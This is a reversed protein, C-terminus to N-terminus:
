EERATQETDDDDSHYIPNLRADNFALHRQIINATGQIASLRAKQRFANWTRSSLKRVGLIEVNIARLIEANEPMWSGLAGVVLPFTPGLHQYKSIKEARARSLTDPDDFPITVDILIPPNASTIVIDPRLTTLPFQKNVTVSHGHRTLIESFLEQVANHRHTALVQSHPCNSIVHVTTEKPAPCHRCKQSGDNTTGPRGRVPLLGLRARHLQNWTAFSLTSWQSTMKAIDKSTSDLDLGRPARGQHPADILRQTFRQRVVTRLGRVAKTSTVSIDDAVLLSHTEDGSVDIRVKLYKAARRTRTWLNCIGKTNTRAAFLCGDTSGSIYASTPLLPPAHKGLQITITDELHGRAISKTIPDESDLLQTARALTWIDSDMSLPTFGLGGVRRDGYLFGDTADIPVNSFNKLHLKITNELEILGSPGDKMVRGSALHHSLSPLLYARVVELKQWPALLSNSLKELKEVIDNPPRFLLRAGIPTGLFKEHEEPSISRLESRGLRLSSVCVRGNEISLCSCKGGNFELGLDAAASDTHDIVVQQSEWNSSVVAMDDAYATCKVTVGYLQYGPNTSAKAARVLPEAALNFVITSLGDGQRVGATPKVTITNGGAMFQSSNNAYIDLLIHRLDVPIPLSGFLESLVGHPLSGFANSLDLWCISLSEKKQIATRVSSELLETHEQIGKVGPLFGKQEPSLWSYSTAISVMRSTLVSTFVKYLTSLLSIPRFNDVQDTEGKKHILVVKAVKWAAPIGFKWVAAYLVELLCGGPDLAKLHRYELKDAGPSTNTAWRLKMAVEAATPPKSLLESEEETPPTWECSDFARRAKSREEDSSVPREYIERLKSDAAEITGTYGPSSEELAKRVAQRPYLKFLRQIKSAEKAKKERHNARLRQQQRSQGRRKNTPQRHSREKSSRVDVGVQKLWDSSLEDLIFNLDNLTPCSGLVPAWKRFFAKSRTPPEADDSTFSEGTEDNNSSRENDSESQSDVIHHPPSLDQDASTSSEESISESDISHQESDPKSETISNFSADTSKAPSSNFTRNLISTPGTSIQTSNNASFAPSGSLRAVARLTRELLGRTPAFQLSPPPSEPNDSVSSSTSTSAEAESVDRTINDPM